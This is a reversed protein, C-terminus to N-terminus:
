RAVGANVIRLPMTASHNRKTQFELVFAPGRPLPVTSLVGVRVMGPAHLSKEVLIQGRHAAPRVGVPTMQGPDYRLEVSLGYAGATNVTVPVRLLRGARQTSPGVSLEAPARSAVSLAAGTGSPRWDGTCDGFLVAAFNQNAAPTTLPEFCIYGYPQCATPGIQPSVIEQNALPAPEPVFAWDSSCMQAVPLRTIAGVTYRLVLVADNIDVTGDGSVDGALRQQPTLTVAGVTAKLIMVADNIDVFRSDGNKQPRVEWNGQAVGSFTFQGDLGTSISAASTGSGANM